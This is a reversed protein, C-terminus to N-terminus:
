IHIVLSERDIDEILSDVQFKSLALKYGSKVTYFGYPSFHWIFNGDHKIHEIKMSLILCAEKPIFLQNILNANWCNTDLIMFDSVRKIIEVQHSFPRFGDIRSLCPDSWSNM